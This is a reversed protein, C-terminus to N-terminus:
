GSHFVNGNQGVVLLSLKLLQLLLRLTCLKRIFVQATKSALGDVLIGTACSVLFEVLLLEHLQVQLLRCSWRKCLVFVVGHVINTTLLFKEEVVSLGNRLLILKCIGGLFRGLQTRYTRFARIL